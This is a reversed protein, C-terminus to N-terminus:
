EGLRRQIWEPSRRAHVIAVVQIHGESIATFYIFFNFRQFRAKRLMPDVRQFQGPTEVAKELIAAVGQDFEAGLGPPQQEYFTVAEWLEQRAKRRYRIM